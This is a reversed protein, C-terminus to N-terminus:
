SVEVHEVAKKRALGYNGPMVVRRMSGVAFSEEGLAYILAIRV